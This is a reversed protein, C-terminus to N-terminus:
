ARGWSFSMTFTCDNEAPNVLPNDLEIIPLNQSNSAAEFGTFTRNTAIANFAVTATATRTSSNYSWSFVSANVSGSTLKATLSSGNFPNSFNGAFIGSPNILNDHPKITFDSSGYPTTVTGTAIADPILIYVSYTIKLVQIPTIPIITVLGNGDRILTRSRVSNIAAGRYGVESIDGEIGTFSATTSLKSYRKNSKTLMVPSGFSSSQYAIENGLSEDTFSPEENGTGISLIGTSFPNGHQLALDTILNDIEGTDQILRGDEYVEFKYTGKVTTNM